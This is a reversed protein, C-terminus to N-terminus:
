VTVGNHEVVTAHDTAKRADLAAQLDAVQKRLLQVDSKADAEGEAVATEVSAPSLLESVAEPGEEAAKVLEEGHKHYHILASLVPVVENSTLGLSPDLHAGIHRLDDILSM